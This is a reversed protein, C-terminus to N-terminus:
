ELHAGEHLAQAIRSLGAHVVEPRGGLGIRFHEEADFFRGPVVSTEYRELLRSCLREVSGRRLRPFVVTGAPPLFTDLEPSGHLVERFHRANVQLHQLTRERLKPMAAFAAASLLEGPHVPIVGFLDNLRWMRRALDPEAVAWGCRLGNLGYCKTLSNTTIFEPGLHFATPPPTPLTELYVEDVLVKAGAERALEGVQKLVDTSTLASSPNHLNTLVILRTRPSLRQRIDEPDIQFGHDARRPFFRVSAGLYSALSPLLEYNPSEILVEDGPEVCCAMALHNAMSTGEALVVNDPAVGAHAAVAERLPAYGYFSPGNVELANLDQGLFSLPCFLMGSTVLPYRVSPQTKVWEMYPSGKSRASLMSQMIKTPWTQCREGQFALGRM